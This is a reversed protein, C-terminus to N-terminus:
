HILVTKYSIIPNTPGSLLLNTDGTDEILAGTIFQLPGGLSGTGHKIYLWAGRPQYFAGSMNMQVNGPSLEVGASTPTVHNATKMANLKQTSPHPCDGQDACYIVYGNDTTCESPTVSCGGSSQPENYGDAFSNRRDQWWAIGSYENLEAPLNSGTNKSNVMGTLNITSNKFKLTGQYLTTNSGSDDLLQGSPIYGKQAALGPYNGDTFIFATGTSSDGNITSGGNGNVAGGVDFVAGTQSLTGAMVYQGAGFTATDSTKLGGWFIYSPFTTSQGAGGKYLGGGPCSNPPSPSFTVGTGVTIPQGDPVPVGGSIHYSYYQYPGLTVNAPIAGNLYGCAGIAGSANSAQLPIQPQDHYFDRFTNPDSSYVPALAQNTMNHYDGTVTGGTMITLSGGAVGSGTGTGAVGDDCVGPQVSHCSSSLLIGAPACVSGGVNGPNPAPCTSQGQGTGTSIDTGCHAGDPSNTCDGARNMGYFSGPSVSGAIAATAVASVTGENNRSIASFLQPITQATRVTAWYAINVVGPATPPLNGSLGDNSQISVSQRTSTWDFGNKFAYQCGNNLNSTGVVSSCSTPATHCDVNSVGTGASACTFSSLAAGNGGLRKVAEQVAGLAAVDAATQAQKHVFFSWGLDVALGMMGCMAMLALTALVIAQGGSTERRNTPKM